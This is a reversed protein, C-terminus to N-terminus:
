SRPGVVVKLESAQAEGWDYLAQLVPRLSEGRSSLRYGSRPKEGGPAVLGLAQLDALRETLVKDSLQPILRRLEGYRLPGDKLRALIVAKWKGGLLILSLEVPCGFVEPLNKM